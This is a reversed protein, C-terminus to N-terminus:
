FKVGVSAGVFRPGASPLVAVRRRHHRVVDVVVLTVGAALAVGGGIAMVLGPIATSREELNPPEGRLDDPPRFILPIGVGLTGAGLVGGGIGVYGLVGLRPSHDEEIEPGGALPPEETVEVVGLEDPEPAEVPPLAHLQAVARVIGEDILELLAEGNCECPVAEGAPGVAEGDRIATITVHYDYTSGTIEVSIWQEHGEASPLQTDISPNRESVWQQYLNADAITSAADVRIPASTASEPGPISASQPVTIAAAAEPVGFSSSLVVTALAFTRSWLLPSNIDM